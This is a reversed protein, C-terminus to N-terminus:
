EEIVIWGDETIQAGQEKEINEATDNPEALKIEPESLAPETSIKESSQTSLKIENVPEPMLKREDKRTRVTIRSIGSAIVKCTAQYNLMVGLPNSADFDVSYITEGTSTFEPVPRPELYIKANLMKATKKEIGKICIAWGEEAEIPEVSVPVDPEIQTDTSNPADAELLDAYDSDKTLFSEEEAEPDDTEFGELSDRDGKSSADDGFLLEDINGLDDESVEQVIESDDKGAWAKISIGPAVAPGEDDGSETFVKGGPAGSLRVIYTVGEPNRCIIRFLPQTDTSRGVDLQGDVIEVCDSSEEAETAAIILRPMFYRYKKPLWLRSEQLAFAPESSVFFISILVILLCMKSPAVRVPRWSFIVPIYISGAEGQRHITM